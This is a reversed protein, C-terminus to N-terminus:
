IQYPKGISVAGLFSVQIPTSLQAIRKDLLEKSANNLLKFMALKAYHKFFDISGAESISVPRIM